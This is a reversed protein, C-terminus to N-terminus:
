WGNRIMARVHDLQAPMVWLWVPGDSSECEIVMAGPTLWWREGGEQQRTRVMRLDDPLARLRTARWRPEWRFREAGARIRGVSWRRGKEPLKAGVPFWVSEGARGREM